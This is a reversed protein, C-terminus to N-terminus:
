AAPRRCTGTRSCTESYWSFAYGERPHHRRGEPPPRYLHSALTVVAVTTTGLREAISASASLCLAIFFVRTVAPVDTATAPSANHVVPHLLRGAVGATAVSVATADVPAGEAGAPVAAVGSANFYACHMRACPTGSKGAGTLPPNSILLM